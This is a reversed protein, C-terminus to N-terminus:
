FVHRMSSPILKCQDSFLRRLVRGYNDDEVLFDDGGDDDSNYEDDSVEGMPQKGKNDEMPKKGRDDQASSSQGAEHLV